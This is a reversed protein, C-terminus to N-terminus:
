QYIESLYLSSLELIKKFFEKLERDSSGVHPTLESQILYYFSTARERPTSKCFLLGLLM